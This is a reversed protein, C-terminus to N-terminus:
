AQAERMHTYLLARATRWDREVTSLSTEHLAAIEAFSLGAFFHLEVVQALREGDGRLRALASDLALVDILQTEDGGPLEPDLTAAMRHDRRQSQRYRAHDVLIQRMAMAAIHFFHAKNTASLKAGALKVYAEHVLGTTNRSGAPNAALLRHARAHLDQYLAAFERARGQAEASPSAGAADGEHVANPM